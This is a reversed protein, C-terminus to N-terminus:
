AVTNESSKLSFQLDKSPIYINNGLVMGHLLRKSDHVWPYKDAHDKFRDNTIIFRSSKQDALFLLFSDACTGAPVQLFKDSQGKLLKEYLQVEQPNYKALIHKATADFYVQFPKNMSQLGETIAIVYKISIGNRVKDWHMINSGDLLYEEAGDDPKEITKPDIQPAAITEIVDEEYKESVAKGVTSFAHRLEGYQPMIVNSGAIESLVSTDPSEGMAIAHCVLRGCACATRIEGAAQHFDDSSRKGDSLLILHPTVCSQGKDGYAKRQEEIKHIALSLAAGIPTDGKPRITTTPLQSTRFPTFEELMGLNDGMSVAAIDIESNAFEENKLTNYFTQLSQMMDRLGRGWMSHSTDLVLIVPCHPVFNEMEFDNAKTEIIDGNMNANEISDFKDM